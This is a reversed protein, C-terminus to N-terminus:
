KGTSVTGTMVSVEEAMVRVEEIMVKGGGIVVKVGGIMVRPQTGVEKWVKGPAYSATAAIITIKITPELLWLQCTKRQDFVFFSM